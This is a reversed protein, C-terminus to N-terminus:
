TTISRTCILLLFVAVGSCKINDVLYTKSRLRQARHVAHDYILDNAQCTWYSHGSTEVVDLECSVCWGAEGLDLVCRSSCADSTKHRNLLKQLHFKIHRVRARQAGSGISHKSLKDRLKIEVDDQIAELVEGMLAKLKM